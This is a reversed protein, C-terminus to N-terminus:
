TQACRTNAAGAEIGIAGCCFPQFAGFHGLKAQHCLGTSNSKGVACAGNCVTQRHATQQSIGAHKVTGKDLMAFIWVKGFFAFHILPFGRGPEAENAHWGLGFHDNKVAVQMQQAAGAPAVMNRM